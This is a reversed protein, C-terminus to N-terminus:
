LTMTLQVNSLIGIEEDASDVLEALSDANIRVYVGPTIAGPPLISVTM